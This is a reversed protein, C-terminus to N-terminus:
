FSSNSFLSDSDASSSYYKSDIDERKNHGEYRILHQIRDRLQTLSKEIEKGNPYFFHSWIWSSSFYAATFILLAVLFWEFVDVCGSKLYYVIPLAAIIGALLALRWTVYNYNNRAMGRIKDVIILPNDDSIKSKQSTSGKKPLCDHELYETYILLFVIVIVFLVLWLM